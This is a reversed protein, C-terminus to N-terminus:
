AAQKTTREYVPEAAALVYSRGDLVFVIPLLDLEALLEQAQRLLLALGDTEDGVEAAFLWLGEDDHSWGPWRPRLSVRFAQAAEFTPLEFLVVDSFQLDLKEM